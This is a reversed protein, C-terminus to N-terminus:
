VRTRNQPSNGTPKNFSSSKTKSKPQSKPCLPLAMPHQFNSVTTNAPITVPPSTSPPTPNRESSRSPSEPRRCQKHACDRAFIRLLSFAPSKAALIKPLLDLTTASSFHRPLPAANSADASRKQPSVFTPLHSNTQSSPAGVPHAS